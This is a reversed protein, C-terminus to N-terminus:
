PEPALVADPYRECAEAFTLRTDTRWSHEYLAGCRPCQILVASETAHTAIQEVHGYDRNASDRCFDCGFGTVHPSYAGGSASRRM